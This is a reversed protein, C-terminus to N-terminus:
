KSVLKGIEKDVLYLGRGDTGALEIVDIVKQFLEEEERQESVYWQMFEFTGFDKEALAAETLAYIKSTIFKEHEFAKAMVEKLSGFEKPPQALAPVIPQANVDLLYKFLKRMHVMEEDAHHELFRASGRLGQAASWASMALYLNASAFEHSIQENLKSLIAPSPM